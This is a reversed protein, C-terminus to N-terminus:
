SALLPDPVGSPHSPQRTQGSVVAAIVADLDDVSVTPESKFYALGARRRRSSTGEL